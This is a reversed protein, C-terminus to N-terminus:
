RVRIRVVVEGIGAVEQVDHALHGLGLVRRLRRQLARQVDQEDEVGVVLLVARGAGHADDAARVGIRVGGDGAGGGREVARQVAARVLRDELHQALDARDPVNGREDLLDLGAFPPQHAEAVADVLVVVRAGPDDLLRRVVYEFDGALVRQEVDRQLQLLDRELVLVEDLALEVRVDVEVGAQDVLRQIDRHFHKRYHKRNRADAAPERLPLLHQLVRILLDRPWPLDERYRALAVAHGDFSTSRQCNATPRATTAREALPWRDVALGGWPFAKGRAATAWEAPVRLPKMMFAEPYMKLRAAASRM